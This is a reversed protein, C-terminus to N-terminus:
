HRHDAVCSINMTKGKYPFLKLILMAATQSIIDDARKCAYRRKLLVGVEVVDSGHQARYM